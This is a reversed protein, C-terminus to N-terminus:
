ISCSTVEIVHLLVDVKRNNVRFKMRQAVSNFNHHLLEPEFYNAQFYVFMMMVSFIQTSKFNYFVFNKYWLLLTKFYKEAIEPLSTM